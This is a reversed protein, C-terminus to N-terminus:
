PKNGLNFIDIGETRTATWIENNTVVIALPEAGSAGSNDPKFVYWDQGNFSAPTGGTQASESTGVWLLGPEVETVALVTNLPLGSNGTNFYIWDNGQLRALGNSTAAWITNYSDVIVANASATTPYFSQTGTVPSYSFIGRRTAVWLKDKTVFLDFVQENSLSPITKWNVGNWITVGSLTGAYIYGDPSAAFANIRDNQLGLDTTHFVQWSKENFRALGYGTGFWLNGHTDRTLSLIEDTPLGSNNTNFVQWLGPHDTSEPPTWIAAGKETAIIMEGNIGPLLDHVTNSPLFSSQSTIHSWGVRGITYRIAASLYILAIFLVFAAISWWFGKGPQPFMERAYNWYNEQEIAWHYTRRISGAAMMCVAPTVSLAYQPWKTPWLLLFLMGFTLWIVLWRREMWERKIGAIAFIAILGDFGFYFFVDPHWRAPSSTLVWLFPQYWPYNIEAVHAGQSYSVHFTVMELLRNFPDHWLTVDLVFFTSVAALGYCVIWPIPIKKEFFALYALVIIIVPTYTFKGATGAGLALASLWFWKDRGKELTRVFALVAAITFAHPIAELYAQSTYKIALTHVGLLGGALPDLFAVFIVAIVGFLASVARSTYFANAYTAFKGLWLIAGSYILKVLAPHERVGPYDIVANFDKHKIVEAYDFAARLYVPEDYDQPLLIVALARLFIAITIVLILYATKNSAHEYKSGCM